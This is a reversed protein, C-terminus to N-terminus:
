VSVRGRLFVKKKNKETSKKTAKEIKPFGNEVFDLVSGDPIKDLIKPNDIVQRIFDFTLKINKKAKEKRTMTEIKELLKGKEIWFRVRIFDDTKGDILNRVYTVEKV